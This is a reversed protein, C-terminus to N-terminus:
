SGTEVEETSTYFCTSDCGAEIVDCGTEIVDCGAKSVSELSQVLIKKYSLIEYLKDQDYEGGM